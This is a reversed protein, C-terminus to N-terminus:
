DIKGVAHCNATMKNEIRAMFHAISTYEDPYMQTLHHITKDYCDRLSNEGVGLPILEEIVELIRNISQVRPSKALLRMVMAAPTEGETNVKSINAGSGILLHVARLLCDPQQARELRSVLIHLPTGLPGMIANIDDCGRIFGTLIDIIRPSIISSNSCCNQSINNLLYYLPKKGESDSLSPDGGQELIWGLIGM